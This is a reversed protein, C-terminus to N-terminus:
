AHAIVERIEISDLTVGEPASARAREAAARAADESEWVVVSLGQNGEPRLWYGAVFGPSGSVRPVVEEHLRKEGQEVDKVTVNVVTAHM